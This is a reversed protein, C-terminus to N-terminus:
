NCPTNQAVVGLNLVWCLRVPQYTAFCCLRLQSVLSLQAADQKSFVVSSAHGRTVLDHVSGQM